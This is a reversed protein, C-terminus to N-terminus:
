TVDVDVCVSFFPQKYRRFLEFHDRRKWRSVDIRMNEPEARTYGTSDDTEVPPQIRDARASDTTNAHRAHGIRTKACAGSVTNRSSMVHTSTRSAMAAPLVVIMMGVPPVSCFPGCM